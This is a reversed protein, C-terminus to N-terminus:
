FRQDAGDNQARSPVALSRVPAPEHLVKFIQECHCPRHPTYFVLTLVIASFNFYFLAHHTSYRHLFHMNTMIDSNKPIHFGGVTQPVTSMRGVHVPAYMRLTERYAADLYPMKALPQFTTIPRNNKAFKDVEAVMEARVKPDSAVHWAFWAVIDTLPGIGVFLMKMCVDVKLDMSDTPKLKHLMAWRGKSSGRSKKEWEAILSRLRGRLRWVSYRYWLTGPLPLYKAAPFMNIFINAFQDVEAYFRKKCLSLTDADWDARGFILNLRVRWWASRIAEAFDGNGQSQRASFTALAESFVLTVTKFLPKSTDDITSSVKREMKLLEPSFRGVLPNQVGNAHMKRQPVGVLVKKLYEPKNLIVFPKGAPSRLAGIGGNADLFASVKDLIARYDGRVIDIPNVWTM